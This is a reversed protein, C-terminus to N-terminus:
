TQIVLALMNFSAYKNFITSHQPEAFQAKFILHRKIVSCFNDKDRFLAYFNHSQWHPVVMLCTIKPENLIAFWVNSIDKIPPCLYYIESSLLPQFFFNVAISHNSPLREFFRPCKTNTSSAFADITPCIDLASTVYQFDQVSLGWEDGVQPKSGMDAISINKDSRKSWLPIVVM